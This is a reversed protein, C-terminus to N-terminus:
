VDHVQRQGCDDITLRCYTSILTWNKEGAEIATKLWNQKPPSRVRRLSPSRARRTTPSISTSTLRALLPPAARAPLPWCPYTTLGNQNLDRFIISLDERSRRRTSCTLFGISLDRRARVCVQGPSDFEVADGIVNVVTVTKPTAFPVFRATSAITRSMVPFNM